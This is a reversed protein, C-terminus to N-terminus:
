EACAKTEPVSIIATEVGTGNTFAGGSHPRNLADRSQGRSDDSRTM